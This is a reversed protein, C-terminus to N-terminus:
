RVYDLLKGGEREGQSPHGEPLCFQGFFASSFMYAMTEIDYNKLTHYSMFIFSVYEEPFELNM